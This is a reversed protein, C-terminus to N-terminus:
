GDEVEGNLVQALRAETIYYRSLIKIGHAKVLALASEMGLGTLPMIDKATLLKIRQTQPNVTYLM